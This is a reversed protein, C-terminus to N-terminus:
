RKWTVGVRVSRGPALTVLPTKGVEIRGDLLNEVEVHWGLAGFLGAVRLDFQYAAALSFVNRDDDFQSSVAHWVFSAEMSRPLRVDGSVAGSLRPVQPLRKGELPVEISHRFTADSYTASGRIRVDSGVRVAADLEAGRAHAEGTNRRERLTPSLTVNAIADDVVTWFAGASAEWTRRTLSVAVDASRSREPALTPNARTLISGVQFNRVLENLTPWRHSTAVSGRVVYLGEAQWSATVRGVTAADRADADAPAVRWEHRVGVGITFRGTPTIAAQASLAEGDDRLSQKVMSTAKVDTFDASARSIALRAGVYGRPMTRGIEAVARTTTTDIFQTSTLTETARSSAVSTFTQYFTNPTVSVRAAISTAAGVAEFAVAVTGGKMRNRQKVTGNGRNDRGGWGSVTLRRNTWAVTARGFGSAWDADAPQDVKGRSAPEVPIVGDTRFWNAAGFLSVRGARGGASLDAGVVGLSGAEGAITVSAPGGQPAVIGIVGGLADSGFTEGEAGRDIEVREIALPPLRTWTVWAGFGDNLPVGDLLVVGRSAGSASLGRMTVGHTTPNSTRSSSRRFLSFGSVVRLAEDATVAPVKDLDARPLVTQGTPGDRWPASASAPSVVVSERLSAIALTFEVPSATVLRRVPAYGRASVEVVAPLAADPFSFAGAADSTAAETRAGQYLVVSAGAVPAGDLGKVTGTLAFTLVLALM